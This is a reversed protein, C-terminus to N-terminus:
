KSVPSLPVSSRKEILIGRMTAITSALTVWIFKFPNSLRSRIDGFSDVSARAPLLALDYRALGWSADNPSFHAPPNSPTRRPNIARRVTRWVSWAGVHDLHYFDWGVLPGLDLGPFKKCLRLFFDFEMYGYHIFSEDYGRATEWLSRHMLLIGIYCQWYRDAPPSEMRPLVAHFLDVYSAAIAFPPCRVAFSYPIRRRNSIMATSPLAFPVSASDLASFFWKLFRRGVLTDQDIRGIYDGRSRRAAANLAFVESFPSDQQKETATEAPIYLYRVIRAAEQSLKVAEALPELSGWDAVIIEVDDLRGLKAAQCATYNLATELRWLSNGQWHDNRSCLILSLRPRPVNRRNAM